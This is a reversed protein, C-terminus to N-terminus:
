TLETLLPGTMSSEISLTIPSRCMMCIIPLVHLDFKRVVRKELQRAYEASRAGDEMVSIGVHSSKVDEVRLENMGGETKHAPSTITDNTAPTLQPTM